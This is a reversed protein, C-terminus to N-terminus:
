AARFSRVKTRTKSAHFVARSHAMIAAVITDIRKTSKPDDKRIRVGREDGDIVRANLAHRTLTPDGSHTVDQNQIAEALSLTAPEMRTRSQPFEVVPLGEGALVDLTRQWRSPDCVIEVVQWRKCAARIPDEVHNVPIRYGSAHEGPDWVKVVDIHPRKSISVAVLATTDGSYSGDFGLIVREGDPIPHRDEIAEWDEAQLWSDEAGTIFQGLRMRRFTSERMTKHSSELGDLALFSHLAPNSMKWCHRCDAEHKPDSTYVTYAWSKPDAEAQKVIGFLYNDDAMPPTSIAWVLSTERKGTAGLVAEITEPSLFAAEDIVAFTPDYGQLAGENAPLPFMRSDTAPYWIQDQYLMSHELLVPSIEIMRAATGFVINAQRLDVATCIVQASEGGDFLQWLAVAAALTSKGNGRPILTLGQRPRKGTPPFLSKLIDRQFTHVKFPQRAGKGKTVFLFQEMFAIARRYDRKSPLWSLDIPDLTPNAKRGINLGKYGTKAM